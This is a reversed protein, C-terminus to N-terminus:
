INYLSWFSRGCLSQGHNARYWQGIALSFRRGWGGESPSYSPTGFRIVQLKYLNDYSVHKFVNQYM